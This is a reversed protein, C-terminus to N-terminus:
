KLTILIVEDKSGTIRQEFFSKIQAEGEYTQTSNVTQIQISEVMAVLSDLSGQVKWHGIGFHFEKVSNQNNPALQVMLKDEIRQDEFEYYEKGKKFNIQITAAADTENQIKLIQGPDCSILLLFCVAIYFCQALKKINIFQYM